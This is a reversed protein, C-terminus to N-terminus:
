IYLYYMERYINLRACCSDGIHVCMASIAVIGLEPVCRPTFMAAIAMDMRRHADVDGCMMGDRIGNWQMASCEM